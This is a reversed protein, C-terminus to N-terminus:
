RDWLTSLFILCLDEKDGGITGLVLRDFRPRAWLLFRSRDCYYTTDRHYALGHPKNRRVTPFANRRCHYRLSASKATFQNIFTSTLNADRDATKVDSMGFVAFSKKESSGM